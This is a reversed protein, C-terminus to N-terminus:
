CLKITEGRLKQGGKRCIDNKDNREKKKGDM